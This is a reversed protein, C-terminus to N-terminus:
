AIGNAALYRLNSIAPVGPGRGRQLFALLARHDTEVLSRRQEIFLAAIRDPDLGHADALDHRLDRRKDRAADSAAILMTLAPQMKDRAWAAPAVLVHSILPLGTMIFWARCLDEQFGAEPARLAEAGEVIVAQAAVTDGTEWTLATIGYFPHLTARALFAATRDVDWLRVPTEEVADPRVPTRLAIAGVPGAVVAADPVVRHTEQLWALEASPLLAVDEPGLDDAQLPARVEYPVPAAVWGARLPHFFPAMVLTEHLLVRM